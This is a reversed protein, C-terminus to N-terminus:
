SAAPRTSRRVKPLAGLLYFFYGLGVFLALTALSAIITLAIKVGSRRQPLKRPQARYIEVFSELITLTAYGKYM